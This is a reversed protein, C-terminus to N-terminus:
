SVSGNGGTFYSTRKDTRIVPGKRGTASSGISYDLVEAEPVKRVHRSTRSTATMRELASTRKGAM